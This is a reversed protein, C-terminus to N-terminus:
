DSLRYYPLNLVPEFGLKVALRYSSINELRCAWVPEYKNEICYDILASCTHQAFGKGRFEHITEMGLELYNDHIYASYATTALKDKHFLSFGVGNKIFDDASDWFSSPVVSGVMNKFMNADTRVIKLNDNINDQKFELYKDLNFKFNIRTNIEILNKNVGILNESAKISCDKYLKSLVGEWSNPFAQMWEHKNRTHNTNLSYDKFSSNFKQNDYDGFLLSMGYPHVVYFTLPHEIKDVYVSGSVYYEVVSRAFLNNITVTKLPEIVKYYEKKELLIM